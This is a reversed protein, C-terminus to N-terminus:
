MEGKKSEKMMQLFADENAACVEAMLFHGVDQQGSFYHIQASSTWVSGFVKCHTLVRWIFRRGQPTQLLFKLDSLEIDRRAKDRSVAKKVQEEDGANHTKQETM